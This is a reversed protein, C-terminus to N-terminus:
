QYEQGVRVHRAVEQETTHLPCGPTSGVQPQTTYEHGCVRCAVTDLPIEAYAGSREAFQQKVPKPIPREIRTPEDLTTLLTRNGIGM